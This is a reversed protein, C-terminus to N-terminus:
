RRGSCTRPEPLRHALRSAPATQLRFQRRAEPNRADLQDLSRAYLQQRDGLVASFVLTRGDPALAIASRSLHGLEAPTDTDARLRDTPAISVLVRAVDRAQGGPGTTLSPVLLGTAVAGIVIGAILGAANRTFRIWGVARVGAATAQAGPKSADQQIWALERALDGANQWRKEPDKSLCAAIARDLAQPTLPQLTSVPPPDYELISVILNAQSKGQFAKTGTLMEYLVAGFAFVDSRADADLGELQEPAMYHLTGLLTGPSTLPRTAPRDISVNGAEGAGGRKALGFDLLKSGTKTLGEPLQNFGDVLGVPNHVGIWSLTAM